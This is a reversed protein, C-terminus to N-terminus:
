TRIFHFFMTHHSAIGPFRAQDPPVPFAKKLIHCPFSVPYKGLLPHLPYLFFSGLLPNTPLGRVPFCCPNITQFDTLPGQTYPSSPTASDLSSLKSAALDRLARFWILSELRMQLVIPLWQFIQDCKHNKFTM